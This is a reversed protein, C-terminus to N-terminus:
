VMVNKIMNHTKQAQNNVVKLKSDDKNLKLGLKTTEWTSVFNHTAGSDGLAMVKQEGMAMEVYILSKHIEIPIANLFLLPNVRM